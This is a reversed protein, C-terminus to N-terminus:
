GDPGYGVVVAYVAVSDDCPEDALTSTCEYYFVAETVDGAFCYPTNGDPCPVAAIDAYLGCVDDDPSSRVM